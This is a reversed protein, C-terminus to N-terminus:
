EKNNEALIEEDSTAITKRVLDRVGVLRNVVDQNVTALQEETAIIQLLKWMEDMGDMLGNRQDSESAAKLIVERRKKDAVYKTDEVVWAGVFTKAEDEIIKLAESEAEEENVTVSSIVQIIEQYGYSDSVEVLDQDKELNVELSKLFEERTQDNKEGVTYRLELKNM